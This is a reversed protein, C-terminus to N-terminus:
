VVRVAGVCAHWGDTDRGRDFSPTSARDVDVRQGGIIHCRAQVHAVRRRETWLVRRPGQLTGECFGYGNDFTQRSLTLHDWGFNVVGGRQRVM